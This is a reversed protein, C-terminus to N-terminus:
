KQNCKQECENVSEFNNANGNCGGFIFQQCQKSSANFYYKKFSGRCDGVDKPLVCIDNSSNDEREPAKQKKCTDKCEKLLRFNNGNGECGGYIFLDCRKAKSNYYFRSTYEKCPGAEFDLDCVNNGQIQQDM